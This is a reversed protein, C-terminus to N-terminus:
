KYTTPGKYMSKTKNCTEYIRRRTSSNVDILKKNNRLADKNGSNIIDFKGETFNGNELLQNKSTPETRM